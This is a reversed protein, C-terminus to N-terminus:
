LCHPALKRVNLFSKLAKRAAPKADPAVSDELDYIIVDSSTVLSKNLM